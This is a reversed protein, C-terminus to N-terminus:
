ALPAFDRAFLLVSPLDPLSVLYTESGLTIESLFAPVSGQNGTHRWFLFGNWRFKEYGQDELWNGLNGSAPPTLGPGPEEHFQRTQDYQWM